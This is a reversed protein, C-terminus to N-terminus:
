VVEPSATCRSSSFGALILGTRSLVTVLVWSNPRETDLSRSSENAQRNLKLLAERKMQLKM